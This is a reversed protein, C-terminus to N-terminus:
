ICRRVGIDDVTVATAVRNVRTGAVVDDIALLSVVLDAGPRAVVDDVAARPVVDEGAALAVVDDIGPRAAVLDAAAGAVVGGVDVSGVGNPVALVDVPASAQSRQSRPADESPVAASEDFVPLYGPCNVNISLQGTGASSASSIWLMLFAEPADKFEHSREGSASGSSVFHPLCECFCSYSINM